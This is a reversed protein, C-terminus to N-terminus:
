VPNEKEGRKKKNLQFSAKFVIFTAEPVLECCARCRRRKLSAPGAAVSRARNEIVFAQKFVPQWLPQEFLSKYNFLLFFLLNRVKGFGPHSPAPWVVASGFHCATQIPSFWLPVFACLRAPRHRNQHPRQIAPFPTAACPMCPLLFTYHNRGPIVLSIIKSWEYIIM